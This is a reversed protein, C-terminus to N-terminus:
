LLTKNLIQETLRQIIVKMCNNFDYIDIIVVLVLHKFKFTSKMMMELMTDTCNSIDQFCEVINYGGFKNKIIFADNHKSQQYHRYLM